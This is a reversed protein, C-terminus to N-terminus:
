FSVTVHINIHTVGMYKFDKAQVQGCACVRVRARADMIWRYKWVYEEVGHNSYLKMYLVCM